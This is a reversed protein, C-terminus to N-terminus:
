KGEEAYRWSVIDVRSPKGFTECYEYYCSGNWRHNDWEKGFVDKVIINEGTIPICYYDHWIYDTKQNVDINNLKDCKKLAEDYTSFLREEEVNKNDFKNGDIRYRLVQGQRSVSFRVSTITHPNEDVSYIKIDKKELVVRGKGCCKPCPMTYGRYKINGEGLCVDCTKTTDKHVKRHSIVFVKQDVDYKNEVSLM